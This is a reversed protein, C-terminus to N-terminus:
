SVGWGQADTLTPPTDRTACEVRWRHSKPSFTSRGVTNAAHGSHGRTERCSARKFCVDGVSRMIRDCILNTLEM